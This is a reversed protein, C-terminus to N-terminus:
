SWSPRASPRGDRGAAALHALTLETAWHLDEVVLLCRGRGARGSSWGRWPEGSARNRAANDMADYLARLEIPQPLDLLDNLFVADEAAM